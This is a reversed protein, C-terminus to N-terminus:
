VIKSLLEDHKKIIHTKKMAVEDFDIEIYALKEKKFNKIEGKEIADILWFYTTDYGAGLSVINIKDSDRYADLFKNIM